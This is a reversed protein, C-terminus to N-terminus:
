RRRRTRRGALIGLAALAGAATVAGFLVLSLGGRGPEDPQGGAVAVPAPVRQREGAAPPLGDQGPPSGPGANGPGAADPGSGAGVAGGSGAGAGVAVGPGGAAAGASRPEDSDPHDQPAGPVGFIGPPPFFVFGPKATPIPVRASAPPSVVQGGPAAASATAVNTVVGAAVDAATIVHDATTCTVVQRPVLSTTPCDVPGAKPDSVTLGSLMTNGTNSVTITWRVRGAGSGSDKDVGVVTGTKTVTLAPTGTVVIGVTTQSSTAAMAPMGALPVMGAVLATM